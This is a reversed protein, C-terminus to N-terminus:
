LFHNKSLEIAGIPDNATIVEFGCEGLIATLLRRSRLNDVVYLVILQRDQM